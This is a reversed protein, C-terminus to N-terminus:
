VGSRNRQNDRKHHIELTALESELSKDESSQQPSKLHLKSRCREHPGSTPGLSGGATVIRATPSVKSM